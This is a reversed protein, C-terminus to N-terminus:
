NGTYLHIAIAFHIVIISLRPNGNVYIVSSNYPQVCPYLMDVILILAYIRSSYSRILDLQQDEILQSDRAFLGPEQIESPKESSLETQEGM